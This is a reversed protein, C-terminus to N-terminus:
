YTANTLRYKYTHGKHTTGLLLGVVDIYRGARDKCCCETCLLKIMGLSMLFTVITFVANYPDKFSNLLWCYYCPKIYIKKKQQDLWYPNSTLDSLMRKTCGLSGSVNKLVAGSCQFPPITMTTKYIVAATSSVECTCEGAPCYVCGSVTNFVVVRTDQVNADNDSLVVIFLFPPM